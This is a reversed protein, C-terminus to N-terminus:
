KGVHRNSCKSLGKTYFMTTVSFVDTSYHKLVCSIGIFLNVLKDVDDQDMRANSSTGLYISILLISVSYKTTQAVLQVNTYFETYNRETGRM